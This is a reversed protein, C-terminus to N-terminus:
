LWYQLRSHYNYFCNSGEKGICLYVNCKMSKFSSKKDKFPCDKKKVGRKMRMFEQQKKLCAACRHDSGDGRCVMHEAVGHMREPYEDSSRRRKHSNGHTTPFDGILQICLKFSLLDIKRHGHGQHEMYHSEIVYANFVCKFSSWLCEWIGGWKCKLSTWLLWKIMCTWEAGHVQQLRQHPTPM